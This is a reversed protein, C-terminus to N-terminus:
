SALLTCRALLSRTLRHLKGSESRGLLPTTSSITITRQAYGAPLEYRQGQTVTLRRAAARLTKSEAWYQRVRERFATADGGPDPVMELFALPCNRTHPGATEREERYGWGFGRRRRLEYHAIYREREKGNHTYVGWVVWLNHGGAGTAKSVIPRRADMEYIRGTLIEAIIDARTAGECYDWSMAKRPYGYKM